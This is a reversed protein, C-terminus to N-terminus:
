GNNLVVIYQKLIMIKAESSKYFQKYLFLTHVLLILSFVIKQENITM